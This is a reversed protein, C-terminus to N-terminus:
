QAQNTPFSSPTGTSSETTVEGTAAPPAVETAGATVGQDPPALYTTVAFDANLEPFGLDGDETLVFGDLTVLRGDVSTNAGNTTVLSDIGDIFNAVDFFSGRFSLSYPMVALGAPGIAAGLPQLAAAAETPAVTATVPTSPGAEPAPAATAEAESGNGESLQISDFQVDSRESIRNLSVL